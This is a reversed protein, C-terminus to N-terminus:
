IHSFVRIRNCYDEWPDEANESYRINPFNNINTYTSLKCRIKSEGSNHWIYVEKLDKLPSLDTFQYKNIWYGDLIIIKLNNCLSLPDLTKINKEIYVIELENIGLSLSDDSLPNRKVYDDLELYVKELDNVNRDGCSKISNDIKLKNFLTDGLTEAYGYLMSVREDNNLLKSLLINETFIIRWEDDIRRIINKDM